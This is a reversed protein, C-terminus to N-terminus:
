TSRLGNAKRHDGAVRGIGRLEARAEAALLRAAIRMAASASFPSVKEGFEESV